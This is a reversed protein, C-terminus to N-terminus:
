AQKMGEACNVCVNSLWDAPLKEGCFGCNTFQKVMAEYEKKEVIICKLLFLYNILDHIRSEISEESFTQGHKVFQTISRWHKRAFIAWVQEPTTGIEGLAEKFNGLADEDGAYEKGKQRLIIECETMTTAWLKEQEEWNM